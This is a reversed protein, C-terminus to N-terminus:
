KRVLPCESESLPRFAQEGPVSKVVKYYDWAYKSETPTKVQVLYMDHVMRGDARLVGQSAFFDDIPIERMKAAVKAADDSGAAKVAKLYHMTGSYVGAQVMTPAVGNYRDM